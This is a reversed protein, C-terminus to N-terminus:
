RSRHPGHVDEVGLNESRVRSDLCVSSQRHLEPIRRGRRFQERADLELNVVHEKRLRDLVSCDVEKSVDHLNLEGSRVGELSVTRLKASVIPRVRLGDLDKRM